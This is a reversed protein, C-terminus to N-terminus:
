AMKKFMDPWTGCCDADRINNKKQTKANQRESKIVHPVINLNTQAYALNPLPKLNHRRGDVDIKDPPEFICSLM